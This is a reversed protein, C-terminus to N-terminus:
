VIGVDSVGVWGVGVGLRVDWGLGYVFGDRGGTYAWGM